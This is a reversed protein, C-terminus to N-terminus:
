SNENPTFERMSANILEVYEIGTADLSSSKLFEDISQWYGPNIFLNNKFKVVVKYKKIAPVIITEVPRFTIEVERLITVNSPHLYRRLEICQGNDFKWTSLLYETRYKFNTVYVEENIKHRAWHSPGMNDSNVIRAAFCKM